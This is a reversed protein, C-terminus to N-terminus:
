LLYKEIFAAVGDENNTVTMYDSAAKVEETANEMAVGIGAQRLFNVDNNGDGFAVIDKLSIGIYDAFWTIANGKDVGAANVEINNVLAGTVEVGEVFQVRALAEKREADIKFVGQVKDTEQNKERIYQMLDPVPTRTARVYASMYPSRMYDEVNAFEKAEAFGVGDYYVERLADYDKFITVIEETMKKSLLSTYLYEGTQLDVIRAGNATIAYRVGPFERVEKPLGGLPRGTVPMIHIGKEQAKMLVERTHDTLEKKSNLLTDDLDFSILKCKYKM